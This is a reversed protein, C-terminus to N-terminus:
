KKIKINNKLLEIISDILFFTRRGIKSSILLHEIKRLQNDEYQFFAKVKDKTVWGGINNEMFIHQKLLSKIESLHEITTKNHM